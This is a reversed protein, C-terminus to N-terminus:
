KKLFSFIMEFFLQLPQEQRGAKSRMIAGYFSNHVFDAIEEASYDDRIETKEQGEKICEGILTTIRGLNDSASSSIQDSIGGMEQTMNGVLCGYRCGEQLNGKILASYFAKLRPLPTLSFNELLDKVYDYQRDTYHKLVEVGFEEKSKFFNYFSGKPTGSAKLIDDIGTNNFGRKRFLEQGVEIIEEKNHKKQM